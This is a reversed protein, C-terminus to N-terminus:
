LRITPGNARRKLPVFISNRNRLFRAKNKIMARRKFDITRVSSCMLSVLCSAGKKKKEKKHSSLVGHERFDLARSIRNSLVVVDFDLTTTVTFAKTFRRRRRRRQRRVL